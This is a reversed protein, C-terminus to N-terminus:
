QASANHNAVSPTPAGYLFGQALQVGAARAADEHAPTEIGEMLTRKGHSRVRTNIEALASAGSALLSRDFKVVDIADLSLCHDDELAGDYDDLWISYGHSRLAELMTDLDDPETWPWEPAIRVADAVSFQLYPVELALGAATGPPVEFLATTLREDLLLQGSVNFSVVGMAALSTWRPLLHLAHDVLAGTAEAYPMWSMAPVFGHVADRWRIFSEAGVATGTEIEIVSQVHLELEISAIGTALRDVIWQEPM